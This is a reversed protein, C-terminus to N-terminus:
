SLLSITNKKLEYKHKSKSASNIIKLGENLWFHSSCPYNEFMVRLVDHVCHTPNNFKNVLKKTHIKKISM